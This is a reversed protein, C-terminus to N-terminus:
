QDYKKRVDTWPLIDSPNEIDKQLRETIIKRKWDPTPTDAFEEDISDLLEFALRRKEDAPLRLIKERDISM